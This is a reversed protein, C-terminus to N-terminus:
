QKFENKLQTIELTFTVPLNQFDVLIGNHYRFKFKLKAIREVPPNYFSINSINNNTNELLKNSGLNNMPIKAFATNIAGNYDTKANLVNPKYYQSNKIYNLKNQKTSSTSAHDVTYFSNETYAKNYSVCSGDINSEIYPTLEDYSNYKDLEMFINNDGFLNVQNPSKIGNFTGSMDNNITGGTSDWAFDLLNDIVNFSYDIKNFGMLAGLGWNNYQEYVNINNQLNALKNTNCSIDYSLAKSFQISDSSDIGSSNSVKIYFKNTVKNYKVIFPNGSVLSSNINNFLLELTSALLEPTYLGDPVTIINDLIYLKNNQLYNSINYLNNPLQIDILKISQVNSYSQPCHIEFENSNIWKSIDRDNSSIYLLKKDTYYNNNNEILVHNSNGSSSFNSYKSM